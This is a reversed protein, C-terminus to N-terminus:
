GPINLQIVALLYLIVIAAAGLLWGGACGSGSYIANQRGAKEKYGQSYGQVYAESKGVLTSAPPATELRLPVVVAATSLSAALSAGAASGLCGCSTATLCSACGAGAGALIWLKDGKADREGDAKGQVYDSQNAATNPQSLLPTSVILVTLGLVTAKRNTGTLLM